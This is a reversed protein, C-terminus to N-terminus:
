LMENAASLSSHVEHDLMGRVVFLFRAADLHGDQVLYEGLYDVKERFQEVM